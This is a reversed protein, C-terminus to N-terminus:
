PGHGAGPHEGDPAYRERAPRAGRGASWRARSRAIALERGVDAASLCPRTVLEVQAARLEARFREDGAVHSLVDDIRPVLRRTNTDVLM